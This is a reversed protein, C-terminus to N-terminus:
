GAKKEEKKGQFIQGQYDVKLEVINNENNRSFTFVAQGNVDFVDKKDSVPILAGNYEGGM